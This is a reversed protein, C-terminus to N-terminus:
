PFRRGNANAQNYPAHLVQSSAIEDIHVGWWGYSKDLVSCRSSRVFCVMWKCNLSLVCLNKSCSSTAPFRKGIERSEGGELDALRRRHSRSTVLLHGRTMPLIDLFALVEPASLVLFCGPQVATVDPASPVADLPSSNGAASPPSPSAPYADAITCFPCSQPYQDDLGPHDAMALPHQPPQVNPMRSHTLRRSM